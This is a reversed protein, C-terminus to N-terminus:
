QMVSPLAALNNLSSRFYRCGALDKAHLASQVAWGKASIVSKGSM